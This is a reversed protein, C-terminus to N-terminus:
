HSFGTGESHGAGDWRGRLRGVTAGAKLWEGRDATFPAALTGTRCRRCSGITTRSRNPNLGHRFPIPGRWSRRSACALVSSSLFRNKSM